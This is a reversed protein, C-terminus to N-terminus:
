VRGEIAPNNARIRLYISNVGTGTAWSHAPCDLGFTASPAGFPGIGTPCHNLDPPAPIEWAEVHSNFGATLSDGIAAMSNPWDNAAAPAALALAPIAAFLALLSRPKMAIAELFSRTAPGDPHCDFRQDNLRGYRLGTLARSIGLRQARRRRLQSTTAFGGDSDATRAAIADLRPEGSGSGRDPPSAEQDRRPTRTVKDTTTPYDLNPEASM